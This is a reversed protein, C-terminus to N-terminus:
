NTETKINNYLNNNNTNNNNPSNPQTKIRQTNNYM